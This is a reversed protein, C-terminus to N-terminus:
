DNVDNRKGQVKRQYVQRGDSLQQRNRVKRFQSNVESRLTEFVPLSLDLDKMHTKALADMRELMLYAVMYWMEQVRGDTLMQMKMTRADLVALRESVDKVLNSMQDGTYTAALQKVSDPVDMTKDSKAYIWAAVAETNNGADPFQTRAMAVLKSPLDVRITGDTKFDDAVPKRGRKSKNCSKSGAPKRKPKDFEPARGQAGVSDEELVAGNTEEPVDGQEVYPEEAIVGTAMVDEVVAEERAESVTDGTGDDDSTVGSAPVDGQTSIGAASDASSGGSADLGATEGSVDIVPEEAGTKADDAQSPQEDAANHGDMAISDNNEEVPMAVDNGGANGPDAKEVNAREADLRRQRRIQELSPM